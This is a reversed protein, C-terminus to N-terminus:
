NINEGATYPTGKEKCGWWRKNNNTSKIFATRIPTLHFSLMIKIQM